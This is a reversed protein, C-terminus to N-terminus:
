TLMTADDPSFLRPILRSPTDCINSCVEISIPISSLNRGQLLGVVKWCHSQPMWSYEGDCLGVEAFIIRLGYVEARSGRCM